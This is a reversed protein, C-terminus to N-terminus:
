LLFVLRCWQMPEEVIDKGCPESDRSDEWIGVSVTLKTISDFVVQWILTVHGKQVKKMNFGVTPISSTLTLMVFGQNGCPHFEPGVRDYIRRGTLV